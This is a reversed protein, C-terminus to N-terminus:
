GIQVHRCGILEGHCCFTEANITNNNCDCDENIFIHKAVIKGSANNGLICVERAIIHNSYNDGSVYFDQRTTVCDSDNNGSVLYNLATIDGCISASGGVEINGDSVIPYTDLHKAVWIDGDKISINTASVLYQCVIDGGVVCIYSKYNAFTLTGSVILSGNTIHVDGLIILDGTFIYDENELTFNKLIREEQM